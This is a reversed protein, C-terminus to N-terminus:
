FIGCVGKNKVMTRNLFTLGKGYVSAIYKVISLGEFCHKLLTKEMSFLFEQMFTHSKTLSTSVQIREIVKTAYLFVEPKKIKGECLLNWSKEAIFNRSGM